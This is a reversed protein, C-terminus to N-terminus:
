RSRRTLSRRVVATSTSTRAIVPRPLPILHHDPCPALSDSSNSLCTQLKTVPFFSAELTYSMAYSRPVPYAYRHASASHESRPSELATCVEDLALVSRSLLFLESESQLCWWTGTHCSRSPGEGHSLPTMAAGNLMRRSIM